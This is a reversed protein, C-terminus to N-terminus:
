KETTPDVRWEISNYLGEDLFLDSDIQVQFYKQYKKLESETKVRITIRNRDHKTLWDIADAYSEKMTM